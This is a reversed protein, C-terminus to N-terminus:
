ASMSASPVHVQSWADPDLTTTANIDYRIRGDAAVAVLTAGVTGFAPREPVSHLVIGTLDGPTANRGDLLDIWDGWARRTDLDLAPDPDAANAFRELHTARREREGPLDIGRSAIIHIGPQLDVATAESGSWRLWHAGNGHLTVLQFPQYRELQEIQAAGALARVPLNGRSPSHAPDPFTVHPGIQNQVFAVQRTEVDVALWTGGARQDHGGFVAPHEPWWFAPADTERGREEDRVFAVLIPWASDADLRVVATCM